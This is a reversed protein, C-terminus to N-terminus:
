KNNSIKSKSSSENNLLGNIISNQKKIKKELEKIYSNKEELWYERKALNKEITDNNNNLYSSDDKKNDRKLNTCYTTDHINKTSDINYNIEEDYIENEKDTNSNSSNNNIKNKNPNKKNFLAYSLINSSTQSKSFIDPRKKTSHYKNRNDITRSKIQSNNLINM